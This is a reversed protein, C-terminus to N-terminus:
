ALTKMAVRSEYTSFCYPALRKHFFNIMKTSQDFSMAFVGVPCKERIPSANHRHIAHALVLPGLGYAARLHPRVYQTRYSLANPVLPSRTVMMWAVVEGAHRVGVSVDPEIDDEEAFPSLMHPIKGDDVDRQLQVREETALQTWEFLEFGLPVERHTKLLPAEMIEPWRGMSMLLKAQPKSWLCSALLREFAQWAPMRTTYDTILGNHGRKRLENELSLMLQSAVGCRRWAPVVSVSLLNAIKPQDAREAASPLSVQALVLGVPVDNDRAVLAIVEDHAEGAAFRTLHPRHAPFTMSSVSAVDESTLPSIHM